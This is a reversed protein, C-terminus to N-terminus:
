EDAKTNQPPTITIRVRESGQAAAGAKIRAGVRDYVIRDSRFSDNGQTLLADGILVVEESDVVYETRLARGRILGDQDDPQQQFRVPRGEAIIRAPQRDRHQVIVRDAELRLSGQVLIVNGRYISRNRGEDFEVGDAELEIPQQRDGSLPFAAFPWGAFLAILVAVLGTRSLRGRLNREVHCM